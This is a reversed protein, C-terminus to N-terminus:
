SNLAAEIAKNVKKIEKEIKSALDRKNNQFLPVFIGDKVTDCLMTEGLDYVMSDIILDFMKATENDRSYKQKLAVEFYVPIVDKWSYYNLAELVAGVVEKNKVTAPVVTTRSGAVTMSGYGEQADDYKPYPVMGFDTEMDRLHFISYLTRDAFLAQDNEFFPDTLYYDNASNTKSYWVGDDWFLTMVKDFVEFIRQNSGATLEPIGDANIEVTKQRAGAIFGPLMSNYRGTFGWNDEKGMTGDGNTDVTAARAMAAMTDFSWLGDDTLRYPNEFGNAELLKKNFLVVCTMDYIGLNLSGFMIYDHDTLNVQSNIDSFWWPKDGSLYPLEKMDLFLGDGTITWAGRGLQMSADFDDDGAQVSKRIDSIATWADASVVDDSFVVNLEEEVKKTREYMIDNLVDGTQENYVTITNNSNTASTLWRFNYGGFDLDDPLGSPIETEAAETEASTEAATNQPEDNIVSSSGANDGCSMMVSSLIMSSLILLSIRKKM